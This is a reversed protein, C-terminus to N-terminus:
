EKEKIIKTIKHIRDPFEMTFILKRERLFGYEVTIKYDVKVGLHNEAYIAKFEEGLELLAAENYRAIDNGYFDVFDAIMQRVEKHLKEFKEKNM